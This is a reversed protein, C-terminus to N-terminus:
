RIVIKRVTEGIRVIYYGKSINITYDGSTYKIEIELVKVGVVSYIELKSGVVANNVTLKNGVVSIEIEPTTDQDACDSMMERGAATGAATFCTALTFAIILICLMRM